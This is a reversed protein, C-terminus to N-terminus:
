RLVAYGVAFAGVVLMAWAILIPWGNTYHGSGDRISEFEDDWNCM